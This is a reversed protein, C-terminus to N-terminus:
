GPVLEFELTEWPAAALADRLANDTEYPGELRRGECRVVLRERGFPWPDLGLRGPAEVARLELDVPEDNTPVDRISRPAWDLCLALSIFDWTWILQSNQAVSAKEPRLSAMLRGQFRREGDLYARVRAADAESLQDLDRRRYLRLGHMSVLLAAYRSQAILKRPGATWLEIHTPVPMEIFGYPLGTQPDRAPERDWEAWGIDHQEAALCVEEWPDPAPFRENGWARALQGSIWAHSPQAIALVGNGDTRLLM